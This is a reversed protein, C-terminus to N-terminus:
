CNQTVNLRCGNAQRRKQGAEALVAESRYLRGSFMAPSVRVKGGMKSIGNHADM